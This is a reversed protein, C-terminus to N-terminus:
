MKTPVFIASLMGDEARAFAAKGADTCRHLLYFTNPGAAVPFGRTISIYEMDWFEKLQIHYFETPGAVTNHTVAFNVDVPGATSSAANYFVAKAAAFVIVHGASPADVTVSHATGWTPQIHYGTGPAGASYTGGPAVPLDSAGHAHRSPARASLSDRLGAVDSLSAHTHRSLARANLSDQLGVVDPAGPRVGTLGSGDGSLKSARIGGAIVVSDGSAELVTQGVPAQLLFRGGASESWGLRARANIGATDYFEIMSSTQAVVASWFMCVIGAVVQVLRM